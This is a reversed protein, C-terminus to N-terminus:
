VSLAPLEGRRFRLGGVLTLVVLYVAGGLPVATWVSDLGAAVLAAAMVAAAVAPRWARRIPPVPFGLSRAYWMSLVMRFVETGVTAAAAGTMGFPPILLLYLVVSMGASAALIRFLHDERGRSLLAVVAMDRVASIPVSCVLIALVPGAPLFEPSFILAIIQPAVFVGGVALPLAVAIVHASSTHYLDREAPPDVRLRTLTPLLSMSYAVAVNGLFSIPAYAAAYYGVTVTDRLVRLFILDANYIVLGLLTSGVYPVARRLLPRLVEPRWAFRLIGFRRLALALVLAAFADGVFQALPARTIDAIDHVWLLVGLLMLAEGACRALGVLGTREMGVHVWRTSAATWLLTLTYLAIVLGDPRPLLVLAGVGFVLILGLALVLRLTLITPVIEGLRDRAHAIERIGLGLDIGADAIKSLYLVLATAIALSGFGAAGLRHALIVTAGFALVRALVEGSGLALFNRTVVQQSSTLPDGDRRRGQVFRALDPM